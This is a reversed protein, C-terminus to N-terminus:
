EVSVVKYNLVAKKLGGDLTQVGLAGGKLNTIVGKFSVTKTDKFHNGRNLVFTKKIHKTHDESQLFGMYTYEYHLDLIFDVTVRYDGIELFQSSVTFTKTFDKGSASAGSINFLNAHNTKVNSKGTRGASIVFVKDPITRVMILEALKKKPYSDALKYAMEIDEIKKSTEFAKLYDDYNGTKRYQQVKKEKAQEKEYYKQPDLVCRVLAKGRRESYKIINQSTVYYKCRKGNNANELGKTVSRLPNLLARFPTSTDKLSVCSFDATHYYTGHKVYVLRNLDNKISEIDSVTPLTWGKVDLLTLNECYRSAEYMDMKGSANKRTDQWIKDGLYKVDKKNRIEVKKSQVTETHSVACGSLYFLAGVLITMYLTLKM